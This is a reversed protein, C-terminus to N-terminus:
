LKIKDIDKQRHSLDLEGEWKAVIATAVANGVVNTASRGMDLLWDIGLIFVLGAIPIQFYELMSAIVVLSARPVGAMGKSSLLLMLLMGIQEAITLDRGYAQALFVTAFTMYMISGDLNFSYGLPLVFGVVRNSCGFRELSEITKPMASESSATSFALLVPEKICSLLQLFPIRAIACIGALVVYIFFLLGGFFCLIIVFYDKLVGLGNTGIVNAVSGMIAFPAFDMVYKTIKFMIHAIADLLKIVPEGTKGIATAAIGFFLAFVIVPLIQNKALADFISVPILDVIFKSFDPKQPKIGLNPLAEGATKSVEAGVGPEFVNVIILGLTLALLTALQFYLITKLGMRGVMKFDGVKGIGVVLTSFVLPAIIMKILHLFIDSLFSLKKAAEPWILGLLLGIILGGIIRTTLNISQWKM